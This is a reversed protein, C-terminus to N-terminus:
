RSVQADGRSEFRQVGGDYNGVAFCLSTLENEYTLGADLPMSLSARVAAKVTQLAISGLAALRQCVDEATAIVADDEVLYEVLGLRSAEAADIPDGTLLMRMAAGYGVLRPLLQSAGGGGVWGHKVEPAGFRSSRGAVRIDTGLAIELGGGLVWGRLAAVVPKRLRRIAAAYETRNRFSWATPYTSLSGLDSGACFARDGAGQLLVVSVADDRDIAACVDTLTTAMEPTISNMKTPRNITLRAIGDRLELLIHDASM